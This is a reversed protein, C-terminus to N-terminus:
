SSYTDDFHFLLMYLIRRITVINAACVSQKDFVNTTEKNMANTFRLANFYHRDNTPLIM